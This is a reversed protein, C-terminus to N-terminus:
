SNKSKRIVAVYYGNWWDEIDQGIKRAPLAAEYLIEYNLESFARFTGARVEEWNWDDVVGIFVDDLVSNYFLFAQAQDEESHGGDYFYINVPTKIFEQPDKSFCDHSYFQYPLQQLFNRCNTSFCKEPGTFQSWDDIGIAGVVSNQNGYLASVFTSGKWCGIELYITGPLSCLNNLFCRGKPSSMGDIKFVESPLSSVLQLGQEISFQIHDILNRELASLNQIPNAIQITRNDISSEKETYLVRSEAQVYASTVLLLSLFTTKLSKM